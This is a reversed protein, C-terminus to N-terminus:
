VDSQLLMDITHRDAGPFDYNALDDAVVWAIESVSHASPEQEGLSCSFVTLLVDYEEYDHRIELVPEGVAVHCGIRKLLCRELADQQSEGERVRGGPFEWLDPLIAHPPRRTILYRPGRQIEASVVRISPKTEIVAGEWRARPGRAQYGLGRYPREELEHLIM